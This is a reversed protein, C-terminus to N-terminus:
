KPLTFATEPSSTNSFIRRRNVPHHKVKMWFRFLFKDFRNRIVFAAIDTQSEIKGPLDVGGDSIGHLIRRHTCLHFFSNASAENVAEREPNQVAYLGVSDEDKRHHVKVALRIVPLLSDFGSM